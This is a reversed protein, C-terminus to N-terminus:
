KLVVKKAAVEHEGQVDIVYVGPKNNSIDIINVKDQLIGMNM